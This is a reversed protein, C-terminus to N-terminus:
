QKGGRLISGPDRSLQDSLRRVSRAAMQIDRLTVDLQHSLPEASVVTKRASTAAQTLQEVAPKFGRTTQAIDAVTKEVSAVVDDLRDIARVLGPARLLDHADDITAKLSDILAPLDTDAIKDLVRELKDTIAQQSTRISPIEPYKRDNMLVAEANPKIDLSVYRMGTVFSETALQARLGRDVLMSVQKKDNLDIGNVGQSSLLGEDIQIVVRVRVNQPDRIAGTMNIKISTVEGIDIGRFKVPAGVRLGAISGDFYVALKATSRFYKGGGLVLLGALLLSLATVVFAGIVTPSAHKSM